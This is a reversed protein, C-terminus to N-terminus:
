PNIMEDPLAQVADVQIVLNIVSDTGENELLYKAVDHGWRSDLTDNTGEWSVTITITAEEESELETDGTVVINFPFNEDDLINQTSVDNTITPEELVIYYETLADEENEVIEYANGLIEIQALSCSLDISAEGNNRVLVEVSMDDMRPYMTPVNIELPNTITEIEGDGDLDSLFELDWSVIHIDLEDNIIKYYSIWAFTSIIMSFVLLVLRTLIKKNYKYNSKRNKRLINM